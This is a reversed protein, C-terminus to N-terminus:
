LLVLELYMTLLTDVFLNKTISIYYGYLALLQEVLCLVLNLGKFASNFGM